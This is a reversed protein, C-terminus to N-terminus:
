NMVSSFDWSISYTYIARIIILGANFSPDRPDSDRCYTSSGEHTVESFHGVSESGGDRRGDLPVHVHHPNSLNQAGLGPVTLAGDVRM